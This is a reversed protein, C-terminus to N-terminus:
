RGKTLWKMVCYMVIAKQLQANKNTTDALLWEFLNGQQAM